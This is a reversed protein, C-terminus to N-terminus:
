VHCRGRKKCPKKHTFCFVKCIIVSFIGIDIKYTDGRSTTGIAVNDIIQYSNKTKYPKLEVTGNNYMRLWHKNCYPKGDFHAEMPEGCIICFEKPKPTAYANPNQKMYFRRKTEKTAIIKCESCYKQRSNHPTYSKGCMTCERDPFTPSKRM